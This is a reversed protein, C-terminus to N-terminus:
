LHFLDLALSNQLTDITLNFPEFRNTDNNCHIFQFGVEDYVWIGKSTKKEIREWIPNAWDQYTLSDFYVSHKIQTVLDKEDKDAYHLTLYYSYDSDFAGETHAVSDRLIEYHEPLQLDTKELFISKVYAIAEKENEVELFAQRSQYASFPVAIFDILVVTFFYYGAIAIGVFIVLRNLIKSKM